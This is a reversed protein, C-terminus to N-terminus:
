LCSLNSLAMVANIVDKDVGFQTEQLIREEMFLVLTMWNCSIDGDCVQVSVCSWGHLRLKGWVARHFAMVGGISTPRERIRLIWDM